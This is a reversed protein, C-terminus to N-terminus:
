EVVLRQYVPASERGARLQVVYVGAPLGAPVPLTHSGQGQPLEDALTLMRRGLADYVAASVVTGTTLFYSVTAGAPAPNPFVSLALTPSSPGQTATIIQRTYWIPSTVIRDGDTQTVLVYYYPYRM